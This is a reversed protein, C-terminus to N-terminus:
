QKTCSAEGADGQIHAWGRSASLPPKANHVAQKQVRSEVQSQILQQQAPLLTTSSPNPTQDSTNSRAMCGEHTQQSNQHLAPM